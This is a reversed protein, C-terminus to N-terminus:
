PYHRRVWDLADERSSLTGELQAEELARLIEGLRPGPAHGLAILDDGTVLRPPHMEESSLGALRARCFEWYRLDGSAARADIRALELLEDIGEERLFRKLTAPRMNPANVLRLHNRVLYAVREWVARSRRLRQCIAIAMEAGREAHGYFTIREGGPLTRRAACVPKGVDHLLAGFALTETPARLQDIVLLTHRLVDGEPHHEPSQEVGEMAAVEPLVAALLGSGHLLEFGRKAAGESLILRVEEGVRELAIRDITPAGREIAAWTAPEITFGLRAALRVARLMRLKDEDLRAAPDGIARIVGRRLDEEGGVYDILRDTLPDYFMGNVTFDRRRADDEASGFHVSVPHRADLYVGDRRFTAVEIRHAGRPVLVVGFQVGVPVSGPFLALVREAPASTAVDYDKAVRGLREDRVCGGAFLAEYGADRLRRVMATAHARADDMPVHDCAAFLSTLERSDSARASLGAGLPLSQSLRGLAMERLRASIARLAYQMRWGPSGDPTGAGAGSVGGCAPLSRAQAGWLAM